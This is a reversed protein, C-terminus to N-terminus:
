TPGDVPLEIDALVEVMVVQHVLAGERRILHYHHFDEGLDEFEWDFLGAYFAKAAPLDTVSLDTWTSTGTTRTM